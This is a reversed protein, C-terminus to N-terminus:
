WLFIKQRIIEFSHYINKGHILEIWSSKHSTNETQVVLSVCKSLGTLLKPLSSHIYYWVLVRVLNFSKYLKCCLLVTMRHYDSFHRTAIGWENWENCSVMMGIDYRYSPESMECIYLKSIFARRNIYLKAFCIYWEAPEHFM